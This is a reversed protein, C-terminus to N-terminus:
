QSETAYGLPRQSTTAGSGPSISRVLITAHRTLRWARGGSALMCEQGRAMLNKFLWEPVGPRRHSSRSRGRSVTTSMPSVTTSMTSSLTHLM